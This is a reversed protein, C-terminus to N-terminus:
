KSMATPQKHQLWASVFLRTAQDSRQGPHNALSFPHLSILIGRSVKSFRKFSIMWFEKSRKQTKKFCIKLGLDCLKGSFADVAMASTPIGYDHHCSMVGSIMNKEMFGRYVHFCSNVFPLSQGVIKQYRENLEGEMRNKRFMDSNTKGGFTGYMPILWIKIDVGTKWLNIPNGIGVGPTQLFGWTALTGVFREDFPPFSLHEYFGLCSPM